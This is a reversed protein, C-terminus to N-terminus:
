GLMGVAAILLEVINSGYQQVLGVLAALGIQRLWPYLGVLQNCETCPGGSSNGGTVRTCGTILVISVIVAAIMALTRVGRRRAM